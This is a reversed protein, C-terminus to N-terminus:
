VAITREVLQREYKVFFAFGLLLVFLSGLVCYGYKLLETPQGSALLDRSFGILYTLPNWDVITALGAMQVKPAYIIPTIFMVFQLAKDALRAFDVAVVRMLAVFLGLGVGLFLLPLLTLPFLLAVWRFSIGYLLLVLINILFPILFQIIHVIVKEAILVEHPFDVTVMLRANNALIRSSADYAGLFFSWISTSLLVYAPYPIDTEGPNMIGAGQLLVWAVVSLIPTIVMWSLGIFSRKYVSTISIKVLQRVLFFQRILQRSRHLMQRPISRTYQENLAVLEENQEVAM